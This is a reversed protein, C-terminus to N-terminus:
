AADSVEPRFTAIRAGAGDEGYVVRVVNAGEIVIYTCFAELVDEDFGGVQIMLVERGKVPWRYKLFGEGPPLMIAPGYSNRVKTNTWVQDCDGVYIRIEDTTPYKAAQKAFPPQRTDM